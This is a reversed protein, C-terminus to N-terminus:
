EEEFELAVSNICYRKGTPEPGDMFVHGLHSGCNSCLVETRPMIRRLDKETEINDSDLVDSFSPWGTGSEFKHDSSFLAQGCAKCRYVGEEENHLLKGSGKPETGRERLVEFEEESLKRRWGEETEPIDEKESDETM